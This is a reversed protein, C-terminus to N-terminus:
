SGLDAAKVRDHVVFAGKDVKWVVFDEVVDGYDDFDV